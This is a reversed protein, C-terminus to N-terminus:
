RLKACAEVVAEPGHDRRHGAGNFSAAIQHPGAVLQHAHTRDLRVKLLRAQLVQALTVKRDLADDCCRIDTDVGAGLRGRQAFQLRDGEDVIEQRVQTPNRGIDM